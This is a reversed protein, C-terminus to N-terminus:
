KTAQWLIIYNGGTMAADDAAHVEERSLASLDAPNWIRSIQLKMLLDAWQTTTANEFLNYKNILDSWMGWERPTVTQPLILSRTLHGHILKYSDQGLKSNGLRCLLKRINGPGVISVVSSTWQIAYLPDIAVLIKQASCAPDKVTIEVRGLVLKALAASRRDASPM